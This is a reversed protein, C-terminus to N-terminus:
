WPSWANQKQIWTTTQKISRYKEMEKQWTDFIFSYLRIAQTNRIGNWQATHCRYNNNQRQHRHFMVLTQFYSHKKKEVKQVCGYLCINKKEKRTWQTVYFNFYPGVYLLSLCFGVRQYWVSNTQITNRIHEQFIIRGEIKFSIWTEKRIMTGQKLHTIKGIHWVWIDHSEKSDVKSQPCIESINIQGVQGWVQWIFIYYRGQPYSSDLTTHQDEVLIHVLNSLTFILHM